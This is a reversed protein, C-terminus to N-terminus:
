WSLGLLPPLLKAHKRGPPGLVHLACGNQKREKEYFAVVLYTARLNKVSGSSDLVTRSPAHVYIILKCKNLPRPIVYRQLGLYVYIYSVLHGTARTSNPWPPFCAWRLGLDVVPRLLWYSTDGQYFRVVM